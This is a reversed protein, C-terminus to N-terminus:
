QLEMNLSTGGASKLVAARPLVAFLSPDDTAVKRPSYPDMAQVHALQHHYSHSNSRWQLEMNLSTGGASKLVAARPLVAFLSSDDTALKRPSYPDM